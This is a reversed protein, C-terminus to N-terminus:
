EYCNQFVALQHGNKITPNNLETQVDIWNTENNMVKDVCWEEEIKELSLSSVTELLYQGEDNTFIVYTEM